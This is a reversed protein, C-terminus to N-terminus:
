TSKLVAVSFASFPELFFSCFSECNSLQTKKFYSQKYVMSAILLLQSNSVNLDGLPSLFRMLNNYYKSM